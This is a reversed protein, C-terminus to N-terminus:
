HPSVPVRELLAARSQALYTRLYESAASVAGDALLDVLVRHRELFPLHFDLPEDMHAYALRFEALIQAIMADLRPSGALAVLAHHFEISAAAVGQWDQRAAARRGAEIGAELDALWAIGSTAGGGGHGAAALAGCEVVERVAFLDAVDDRGLVRVFFGRSLEHVVLRERVLLQLGERLTSRSVGLDARVGEEPLKVGPQVAGSVIRSRIEGAVRNAASHVREEVASM